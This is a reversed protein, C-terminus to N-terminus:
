RDGGVSTPRVPDNRGTARRLDSLSLRIQKGIRHYPLDGRKVLRQITRRSVNYLESADGMSILNEATM